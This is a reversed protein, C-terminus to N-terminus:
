INRKDLLNDGHPSSWQGRQQTKAKEVERIKERKASRIGDCM